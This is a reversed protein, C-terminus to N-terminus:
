VNNQIIQKFKNKKVIFYKEKNNNYKKNFMIFKIDKLENEYELKQFFKNLCKNDNNKNLKKYMYYYIEMDLKLKNIFGILDKNTKFNHMNNLDFNFYISKHYLKYLIDPLLNEIYELNEKLNLKETIIKISLHNLFEKLKISAIKINPIILKFLSKKNHKRKFKLPGITRKYIFLKVDTSNIKFESNNEKFTNKALDIYENFLLIARECLFMSLKINFTYPFIQWFINFVINLCEQIWDLDQLRTYCKIIAEKIIKCFFYLITSYEIQNKKLVKSDIFKILEM